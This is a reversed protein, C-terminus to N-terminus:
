TDKDWSRTRTNWFLVWGDVDYDGLQIEFSQGDEGRYYKWTGFETALTTLGGEEFDRPYRGNASRWAELAGVLRDGSKELEHKQTGNPL